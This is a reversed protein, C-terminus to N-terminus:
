SEACRSQLARNVARHSAAQPGGMTLAFIPALLGRIDEVHTVTSGGTSSPEVAFVREGSFLWDALVHGRWKLLKPAIVEELRASLNMAPRGPLSLTLRVVGGTIRDGSINTIQPNWDPYQDFDMLVQWVKDTTADVQFETRYLPM